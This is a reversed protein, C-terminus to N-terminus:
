TRITSLGVTLTITLTLLLTLTLTLVLNNFGRILSSESQRGIIAYAGTWSTQIAALVWDFSRLLANKDRNHRGTGERGKEVGEEGERGEKDGKLGTLPQPTRLKGQPDQRFGAALLM